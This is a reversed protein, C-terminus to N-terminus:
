KEKEREFTHLFSRGSILDRLATTTEPFIKSPLLRHRTFTDTTDILSAAMYKKLLWGIFPIKHAHPLLVTTGERCTMKSQLYNVRAPINTKTKLFVNGM